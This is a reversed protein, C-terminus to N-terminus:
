LQTHIRFKIMKVNQFPACFVTIFYNLCLRPHVRFITSDRKLQWTGNKREKIWLHWVFIDYVSCKGWHSCGSVTNKNRKEKKLQTNKRLNSCELKKEVTSFNNKNYLILTALDPKKYFWYEQFMLYWNFHWVSRNPVSRISDVALCVTEAGQERKQFNNWKWIGFVVTHTFVSCPAGHVHM